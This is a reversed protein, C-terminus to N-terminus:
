PSAAAKHPQSGPAEAPLLSGAALLALGVYSATTVKSITMLLNGGM